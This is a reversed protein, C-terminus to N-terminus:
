LKTLRRVHLDFDQQKQRHSQETRIDRLRAEREAVLANVARIRDGDRRVRDFEEVKEMILGSRDRTGKRRALASEYRRRLSEAEEAYAKAMMELAEDDYGKFARVGQSKEELALNRQYNWAGACMLVALMALVILINSQRRDKKKRRRAM